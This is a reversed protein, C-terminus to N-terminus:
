RAAARVELHVGDTTVTVAGDRDTRWVRAGVRALNELTEAHPHGFGNRAGVSIVAHSPAIAALTEPRSSTRSGHHGVKLVDARLSARARAVLESEETHEADGMFLVSRQGYTIRM